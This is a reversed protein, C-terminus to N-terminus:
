GGIRAATGQAAAASFVARSNYIIVRSRMHCATNETNLLLKIIKLGRGCGCEAHADFNFCVRARCAVKKEESRGKMIRENGAGRCM